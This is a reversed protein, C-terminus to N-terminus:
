EGNNSHERLLLRWSPEGLAGDSAIEIRNANAYNVVGPMRYGSSHSINRIGPDYEYPSFANAAPAPSPQINFAEPPPPLDDLDRVVSSDFEGFISAILTEEEPADYTIAIRSQEIDDNRVNYEGAKIGLFQSDKVFGKKPLLYEALAQGMIIYEPYYIKYGSRNLSKISAGNFGNELALSEKYSLGLKSRAGEGFVISLAGFLGVSFDPLNNISYGACYGGNPSIQVGLKKVIDIAHEIKKLLNKYKEDKEMDEKM